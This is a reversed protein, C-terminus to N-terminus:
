LKLEGVTDSHSYFGGDRSKEVKRWKALSERAQSLRLIMNIVWKLSFM